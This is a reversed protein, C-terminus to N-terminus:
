RTWILWARKLLSHSATSPGSRRTMYVFESRWREPLLEGSWGRQFPPSVVTQLCAFSVVTTQKVQKRRPHSTISNRGVMKFRDFEYKFDGGMKSVQKGDGPSQKGNESGEGGKKSVQKGDGTSQKGNKNGEGGKKSVQKGDGLSQSGNESGEGGKKSVQKGDGSQKSDTSQTGKKSVQKGDGPGGKDTPQKGDARDQSLPPRPGRFRPGSCALCV